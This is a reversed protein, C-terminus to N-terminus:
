GKRKKREELVDELLRGGASIAEGLTPYLVEQGENLGVYVYSQGGVEIRWGQQGQDVEDLPVAEIENDYKELVAASVSRATDFKLEFSVDDLLCNEVLRGLAELEYEDIERRVEPYDRRRENRDAM